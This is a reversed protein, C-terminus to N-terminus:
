PGPASEPTPATRAAAIERLRLCALRSPRIHGREWRNLTSVTVGVLRAFEEQTAQEALRLARIENSTLPTM